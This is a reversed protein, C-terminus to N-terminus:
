RSMDADSLGCSRLIEIWADKDIASISETVGLSQLIGLIARQQLRLEGIEHDLQMLRQRLVREDPADPRKLLLKIEQLSLGASRYSCIMRLREVKHEGYLRYGAGSRATPRLLGIRDYYLLTTRSLGFMAALTSVRIM